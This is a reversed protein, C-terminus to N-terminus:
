IASTAPQETQDGRTALTGGRKKKRWTNMGVLGGVEVNTSKQCKANMMQEPCKWGRGGDNARSAAERNSGSTRKNSAPSPEVCEGMQTQGRPVGNERIADSRKRAYTQRM